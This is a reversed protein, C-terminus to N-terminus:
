GNGESVVDEFISLRGIGELGTKVDDEPSLRSAEASFSDESSLPAESPSAESPSSAEVPPSTDASLSVDLTRSSSAWSAWRAFRVAKM